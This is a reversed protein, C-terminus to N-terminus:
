LLGPAKETSSSAWSHSPVTGLTGTQACILLFRRCRRRRRRCLLGDYLGWMVGRHYLTGCGYWTSSSYVVAGCARLSSVKPYLVPNFKLGVADDCFAQAPLSVCLDLVLGVFYM